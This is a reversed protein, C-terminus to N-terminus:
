LVLAVLAVMISMKTDALAAVEQTPQAVEALAQVALHAVVVLAALAQEAAVVAM